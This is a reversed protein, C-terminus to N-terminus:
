LEENIYRNLKIIPIIVIGNYEIIEEELLTVILPISRGNLEEYLQCRELHKKVANKLAATKERRSKWKKCEVLYTTGYRKAIVDFQRRRSGDKVVVNQQADFGNEEFIFAVLKEFYQWRADNSIHELDSITKISFEPQM